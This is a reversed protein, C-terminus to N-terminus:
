FKTGFQFFSWAFFSFLATSLKQKIERHVRRAMTLKFRNKLILQM